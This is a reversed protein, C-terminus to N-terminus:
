ERLLGDCVSRHRATRPYGVFSFLRDRPGIVKMLLAEARVLVDRSAGPSLASLLERQQADSLDNLWADQESGLGLRQVLEGRPDAPRTNCGALAVGPLALASRLFSRRDPRKM